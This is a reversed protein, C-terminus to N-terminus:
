KRKQYSIRITRPEARGESGIEINNRDTEYLTGDTKQSSIIINSIDWIGETGVVSEIVRSFLVDEGIGLNSIYSRIKKESESIATAPQANRHLMLELTIDIYVVSPRIIEVRIGAARTEEIVELVKETEGGDVIIKVIGPIKDPMDEILISRVGEVSRVASELSTYTAKGAFELAHTARQRLENDSEEEVGNTIDAKNIIYEVGPVPQPMVTITGALVNGKPGSVTSIIPVEADWKGDTTPVLPTEQITRFLISDEPKLSFTSVRTEKPIKIQKYCIYDVQFMTKADPQKGGQLWRVKNGSLNYDVGKRYILPSGKSTGQIKTADKVLPKNLPYELSGDWLHVEGEITLMEPENSRGFTAIGSSPQPPKRKIGLISVVLDLAKGNATELFGSLYAQEMQLYLFEIERSIAEALTRVVSGTNVDSIGSPKAFKYQVEFDTGNDPHEGGGLWEIGNDILRYDVRNAFM